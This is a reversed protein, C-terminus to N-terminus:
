LSSNLQEQLLTKFNFYVRESFNKIKYFENFLLEYEEFKALDIKEKNFPFDTEFLIRNLPISRCIKIGNKSKLMNLNISFYCNIDLFEKILSVPGSYWHLVPFKNKRAKLIELIEKEARRSHISLIKNISEKCVFDFIKRQQDRVEEQREYFDLGIEGVYKTKELAQRFFKSNFKDSRALGPHFGVALKIYKYNKIKGFYDLFYEPKNTVFIGYIKNREYYNLLEFANEGLDFHIHSDIFKNM